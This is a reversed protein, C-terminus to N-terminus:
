QRRNKFLNESQYLQQINDLSQRLSQQQQQDKDSFFALSQAVLKLQRLYARCPPCLVMHFWVGWKQLTSLDKDIYESALSQLHKCTIM